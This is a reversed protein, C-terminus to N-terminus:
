KRSAALDRDRGSLDLLKEKITQFRKRLKASERNLEENSPTASEDRLVRALDLWALKRDVRLVLLMQDEPSLSERLQAVRDKVETRLYSKTASRVREAIEELFSGDPLAPFRRARKVTTGRYRLSTNRAITYAWTRFSSAWDFTRLGKWVKESFLSFVEAADEDRRHFGLLFGYIEQGYGRLAATTAAEFDQKLCLRRIDAELQERTDAPVLGLRDLVLQNGM